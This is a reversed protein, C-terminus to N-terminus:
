RLLKIFSRLIHTIKRCFAYLDFCCLKINRQGHMM